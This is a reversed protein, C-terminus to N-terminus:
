RWNPCGLRRGASQRGCDGLVFGTAQCWSCGTLASRSRLSRALVAKIPDFFTLNRSAPQLCSSPSTPFTVPDVLMETLVEFGNKGPMNVDMLVLGPRKSSELDVECRLFDLADEGAKIAGVVDPMPCDSFAEKM